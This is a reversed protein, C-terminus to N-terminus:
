SRTSRLRGDLPLKDGVFIECGFETQFVKAIRVAKNKLKCECINQFQYGNSTTKVAWEGRWGSKEVHIIKIDSDEPKRKDM